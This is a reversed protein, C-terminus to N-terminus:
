KEVTGDRITEASLSVTEGKGEKEALLEVFYPKAKNAEFSVSLGGYKPMGEAVTRSQEDTVRLTFGTPLGRLTYIVNEMLNTKDRPCSLCPPWPWRFRVKERWVFQPQRRVYDNCTPSGPHLECFTCFVTGLQLRMHQECIKCFASSAMRMKCDSQPRYAGYAHYLAGEWAGVADPPATTPLTTGVAVFSNWKLPHSSQATVNVEMPEGGTYNAGADSGNCVYCPYEDALLGIKHGLEHMLVNRYDASYFVFESTCGGEMPDNVVIVIADQGPAYAAAELCKDKNGTICREAEGASPNGFRCDLATNRTVPAPHGPIGAPHDIGSQESKVNVRWINFACPRESYPVCEDLREVAKTVATNFADQEDAKFGDGIFVIDYKTLTSGSLRITAYDSGDAQTIIPVPASWASIMSGAAAAVTLFTRASM